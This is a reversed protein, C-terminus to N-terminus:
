HLSIPSSGALNSGDKSAQPKPNTGDDPKVSDKEITAPSPHSPVTHM